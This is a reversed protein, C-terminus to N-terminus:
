SNCPRLEIGPLPLMSKEEVARLGAISGVWGEVPCTCPAINGPTFRHPRSALSDSVDLASTLFSPAIGGSM